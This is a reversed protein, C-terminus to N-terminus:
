LSLDCVSLDCVSLDFLSSSKIKLRVHLAVRLLYEAGNEAAHLGVGQLVGDVDDVAIGIAVSRGDECRVARRRSFVRLHDVHTLYQLKLVGIKVEFPIQVTCMRVISGVVSTKRLLPGDTPITQAGYLKEWYHNALDTPQDTQTTSVDGLCHDSPHRM